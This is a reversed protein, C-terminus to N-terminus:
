SKGTQLINLQIFFITGVPENNEFWIKGGASEIISKSMALGLGTGSTKTTFNPEFVTESREPSIGTGNDAISIVCNHGDQHLSVKIEGKVEEPIAQLANKLLNNFVRILQDKDGMVMTEGEPINLDLHILEDAAFLATVSRLIEAIDVPALKGLPMRAFDSFATAINSLTEIQEVLRSSISSVLEPLDDREDKIARQLYQISLKMPTLPNKIEHAVQKAMERWAVERESRALLRASQELEELMRNYEKVLVGIEDRNKWDIPTNIRGLEIRRIGQTIIDLPQTISRSLVISAVAAGLILLVYINVLAVLFYSIDNRISKQKGYYPFNLYGLVEGNRGRFPLYAAFFSLKGVQEDLMARSMGEQRLLRYAESQMFPAILGSKFMEPQSSLILQGDKNFVNIDLEFTEAIQKLRQNVVYEFAYQEDDDGCENFYSNFSKLVADARQMLRANHYTNYQVSFYFVTVVAVMLLSFLVLAIMSRQIQRQLTDPRIFKRFSYDGWFHRHINLADLLIFFILLFILLYSFLSVSSAVTNAPSTYQVVKEGYRYFIHLYGKDRLVIFDNDNPPQITLKEPYTYDGDSSLLRNHLYIAYANVDEANDLSQTNSRILEPYASFPTFVKPTLELALYGLVISDQEINFFALYKEGKSNVPLYYFYPSVQEAESHRIRSRFENLPKSGEGRLVNGEANYTHISINYKSQFTNLYRMQVRRDIDVSSLYPSAFYKRIFNDNAMESFINGLNFEESLDRQSALEVAKQKYVAERREASYHLLSFAGLIAYLSLVLMNAVFRYRRSIDVRNLLVSLVKLFLFYWALLLLVFQLSNFASFAFGLAICIVHVPIAFWVFSKNLLKPTLHSAPLYLVSISLGIILLALYSAAGLQNINYLDLSIISHQHLSSVIFVVVYFLSSILVSLVLRKWFEDQRTRRFFYNLGHRVVWHLLVVRVLLIGLSDGLVPSAFTSSSFLTNGKAFAPWHLLNILLEIFLIFGVALGAAKQPQHQILKLRILRNIGVFVLMVSFVELILILPHAPRSGSASEQISFVPKGQYLVDKIPKDKDDQRVNVTLRKLFPKKLVFGNKLYKNTAPYANYVTVLVLATYDKQLNRYKVAHHTNGIKIFRVGERMMLDPSQPIAINDSWYVLKDEPTYILLHTNDPLPNDTLQRFLNKESKLTKANDVVKLVDEAKDFRVNLWNELATVARNMQPNVGTYINVSECILLLAFGSLILWYNFRELKVSSM